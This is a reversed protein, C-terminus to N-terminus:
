LVRKRYGTRQFVAAGGRAREGGGSTFDLPLKKYAVWTQVMGIPTDAPAAGILFWALALLIIRM